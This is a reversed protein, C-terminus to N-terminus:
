LIKIGRHQCWRMTLHTLGDELSKIESGDVQLPHSDLPEGADVLRDIIRQVDVSDRIQQRTLGM